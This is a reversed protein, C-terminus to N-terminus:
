VKVMKGSQCAMEAWKAVALCFQATLPIVFGLRQGDHDGQRWNDRIRTLHVADLLVNRYVAFVDSFKLCDLNLSLIRRATGPSNRSFFLAHSLVSFRDGSNVNDRLIENIEEFRNVLTVNSFSSRVSDQASNLVNM